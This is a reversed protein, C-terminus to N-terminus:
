ISPTALGLNGPAVEHAGNCSEDYSDRTPEQVWLELRVRSASRYFRTSCHALVHNRGSQHGQASAHV